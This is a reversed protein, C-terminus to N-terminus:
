MPYSLLRADIRLPGPAVREDSSWCFREGVVLVQGRADALVEVREGAIQVAQGSFTVIARCRKGECVKLWLPTSIPVDPKESLVLRLGNEDQVIAQVQNPFMTLVERVVKANQLLGNVGDPRRWNGLLFGLALCIAACSIGWAMRGRRRGPSGEVKARQGHWHIRASIRNPFRKWFDEPPGPVPASKLLRELECNNM